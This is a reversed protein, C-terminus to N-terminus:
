CIGPPGRPLVVAPVNLHPGMNSLEQRTGYIGAPAPKPAGVSQGARPPLSRTKIPVHLPFYKPERQSEACGLSAGSGMLCRGVALTAALLCRSAAPHSVFSDAPNVALLHHSLGRLAAINPFCPAETDAAGLHGGAGDRQRPWPLMPLGPVQARGQCTCPSCLGVMVLKQSQHPILLFGFGPDEM